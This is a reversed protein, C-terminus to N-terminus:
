VDLKGYVGELLDLDKKTKTLLHINKQELARLANMGFENGVNERYMEVFTAYDKIFCHGGAGREGDGSIEPSLQYADGGLTGSKHVPTLHSYGIRPDESMADRITDWKAGSKQAIDYLMNVFMIKFYFWNNGGYKILEAENSHCVLEFPAKPLTSLVIHAKEKYEQSEIPIGIINRKPNAADQIATAESLFEPSHFVFIDPNEEQIEQTMGLTITSKIVAVKGKGIHKLTDKLISSDFHTVRDNDASKGTKKHPITPTPVAIFVVDCEAIKERNNRYPEELGYRVVEYGRNEFDDAYSGGVFGQGIVGIKEKTKEKATQM